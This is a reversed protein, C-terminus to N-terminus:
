QGASGARRGRESKRGTALVGEGLQDKLPEVLWEPLNHRHREMLDAPKVSQCQDLWRKEQDNLASRLFDGPGYFGLIAM